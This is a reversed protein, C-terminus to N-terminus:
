LESRALLDQSPNPDTTVDSAFANVLQRLGSSLSEGVPPRVIARNAGRLATVIATEEISVVTDLLTLRATVSTPRIDTFSYDTLEYGGMNVGLPSWEAASNDWESANIVGTGRKRDFRLRLRGTDVVPDGDFQYATHYAHTWVSVEGGSATSQLKARNNEDYVRVDTPGDFEFPVDYLLTPNDITTASPDYFEVDGYQAAETRTATAPEPGSAQSYWRPRIAEAPVALQANGGTALPTSVTEINTAISRVSDERTGATALSVDYRYVDDRAEQAPEVDIRTIEYYGRARGLSADAADFLPLATYASESLSDLEEGVKRSLTPGLQIRGQKQFDVNETAINEVSTGGTNLLGAQQIQSGIQDSATDTTQEPLPTLYLRIM